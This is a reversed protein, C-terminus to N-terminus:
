EVTTGALEAIVNRLASVVRATREYDIKDPTDEPTHYYPYRFLATDTVMVAPYGMQWFSWHDSWGIGPVADPVAIGESPFRGDRRFSGVLTRVLERSGFNGVFAIFNGVSPYLLNFPLPYKQSQEADSYYGMTELSLMAIVDDGRKRVARAYVLSGMSETQFSPPEENVFAIFRLTRSPKTGAFARALSLVAAVGSGNDNAGLTGQVDRDEATDYHAGIVIVENARDSGKLEAIINDYRWNVVQYNQRTVRYGAKSFSSELWNAARNLNPQDIVNRYGFATLSQVDRRLADALRAEHETLPPLPDIANM